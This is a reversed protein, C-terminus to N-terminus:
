CSYGRLFRLSFFVWALLAELIMGVTWCVHFVVMWTGRKAAPVFEIFWTSLVHGAGLGLGVIFRLTLLSAFDPSFASFLGFIGTAAATFLFGTRSIDGMSNYSTADDKSFWIVIFLHLSYLVNNNLYLLLNFEALIADEKRHCNEWWLFLEARFKGFPELNSM